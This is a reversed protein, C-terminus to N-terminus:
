TGTKGVIKVVEDLSRGIRQEVRSRIRLASELRCSIAERVDADTFARVRAAFREEVCVFRDGDTMKDALCVIEKESIADLSKVSMGMHCAVIEAVDPFGQDRLIRAGESGHGPRGKAIDHLLAAAEVLNRNLVCGASQLEDVMRCSLRAVARCHRRLEEDVGVLEMLVECERVSPIGRLEWRARLVGYEEMTDMDSLIGEDAVKVSESDSELEALCSKLGGEGRWALIRGRYRCCILPPHGRKGSFCPYLIGSGQGQYAQILSQVTQRRVLPIDVPLLFFADTEPGLTAVGATVSSFMGDPYHENLVPRVRLKEALCLLDSARHGMVVRVDEVGADRFLEIVTELVTKEKLTLLPKFDGM